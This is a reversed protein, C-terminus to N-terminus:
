ESIRVAYCSTAFLATDDDITGREKLRKMIQDRVGIYNVGYESTMVTQKM